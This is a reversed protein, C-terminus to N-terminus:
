QILKNRSCLLQTYEYCCNHEAFNGQWLLTEGQEIYHVKRWLADLIWKHQGGTSNSMTSDKIASKMRDLPHIICNLICMIIYYVRKDIHVITM